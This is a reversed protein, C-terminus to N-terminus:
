WVTLPTGPLPPEIPAAPGTITPPSNSAGDPYMPTFFPIGPFTSSANETLHTFSDRQIKVLSQRLSTACASQTGRRWEQRREAGTSDSSTDLLIEVRCAYARLTM